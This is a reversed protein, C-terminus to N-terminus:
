PKAKREKTPWKTGQCGELFKSNKSLVKLIDSLDVQMEDNCKTLIIKKGEFGFYFNDYFIPVM